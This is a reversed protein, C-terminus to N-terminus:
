KVPCSVLDKLVAKGSSSIYVRACAGNMLLKSIKVRDGQAFYYREIGYKVRDYGVAIEDLKGKIFLGKPKKDSVAGASVKGDSGKVLSVYVTGNAFMSANYVDSIKRDNKVNNIGYHLDMYNGRFVDTPDYLVAQILVEQGIWVTIQNPLMIAGALLLWFVAVGLFIKTEKKM